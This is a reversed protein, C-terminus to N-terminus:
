KVVKLRVGLVVVLLKMVRKIHESLALACLVYFCFTGYLGFAARPHRKPLVGFALVALSLRAGRRECSRARAKSERRDGSM